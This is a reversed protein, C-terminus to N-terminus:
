RPIKLTQGVRIVTGRIGNSQQIKSVTTRYRKAIVSLTEGRKVTHRVVTSTKPKPKPKVNTPSTRVIPPPSQTEILPVHPEPLTNAAIATNPRTATESGTGPG